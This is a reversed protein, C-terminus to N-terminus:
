KQVFDATKSYCSDNTCHTVSVRHASSARLAPSTHQDHRCRWTVAFLGLAPISCPSAFLKQFEELCTEQPSTQHFSPAKLTHSGDNLFPVSSSHRFHTTRSARPSASPLQGWQPDRHQHTDPKRLLCSLFYNKTPNSFSRV